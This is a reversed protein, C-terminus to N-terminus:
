ETIPSWMKRGVFKTVGADAMVDDALRGTVISREHDRGRVVIADWDGIWRGADPGSGAKRFGSSRRDLTLFWYRQHVSGISNTAGPYANNTRIVADAEDESALDAALDPSSANAGDNSRAEDVSSSHNEDSDYRSALRANRTPYARRRKRKRKTAQAIKDNASPLRLTLTCGSPLRVGNLRLRIYRSQFAKFLRESQSEKSHSSQSEVDSSEDDTSRQLHEKDLM